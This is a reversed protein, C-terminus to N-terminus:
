DLTFGEVHGRKGMRTGDGRICEMGAPLMVLHYPPGSTDIQKKRSGGGGWIPEKENAPADGGEQGLALGAAGVRPGASCRDWFVVGAGLKGEERHPM